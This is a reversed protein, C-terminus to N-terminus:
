VSVFPLMIFSYKPPPDSPPLLSIFFPLYPSFDFLRHCFSLFVFCASSFSHFGAASLLYSSCASYKTFSLSSDPVLLRVSSDALSSSYLSIPDPPRHDISESISNMLLFVTLPPPPPVTAKAIRNYMGPRDIRASCVSLSILLPLSSPGLPALSLPLVPWSRILSAM